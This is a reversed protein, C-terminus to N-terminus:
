QGRVLDAEDSPDVTHDVRIADGFPGGSYRSNVPIEFSM